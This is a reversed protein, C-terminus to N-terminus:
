LDNQINFFNSQTCSGDSLGTIMQSPILKSSYIVTRGAVITENPQAEIIITIRKLQTFCMSRALSGKRNNKNNNSGGTSIIVTTQVYDNHNFIKL